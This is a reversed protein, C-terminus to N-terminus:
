SAASTSLPKIQSGQLTSITRRSRAQVRAPRVLAPRLGAGATLRRERDPVPPGFAGHRRPGPLHDRALVRRRAVPIAFLLYLVLIGVTMAAYPSPDTRGAGPSCSGGAWVAIPLKAVYVAAGFLLAAIIGVPLGVVTVIVVAAGVPVILFAGFGLLAGLTPEGAIVAVLRGVLRRFLAVALLGAFMAAGTQWSWFLVGGGDEDDVPEEYRM